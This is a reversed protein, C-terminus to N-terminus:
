LRSKNPVVDITVRAISGPPLTVAIRRGIIVEKAEKQQFISEKITLTRPILYSVAAKSKKPVTGEALSLTVTHATKIGRNLLTAYIRNGEPTLSACASIDSEADTDPLKLLRKGLACTQRSNSGSKPLM